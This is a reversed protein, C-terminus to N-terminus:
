KTKVKDQPLSFILASFIIFGFFISCFGLLISADGFAISRFTNYATPFYCAVSKLMDGIITLVFGISINFLSIILLGWRVAKM